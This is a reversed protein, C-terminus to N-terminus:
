KSAPAKTDAAPAATKMVPTKAAPKHSAHKVHKKGTAHVKSKDTKTDGSMPKSAAPATVSPQSTQAVAPLALALIGAVAAARSLLSLKTSM